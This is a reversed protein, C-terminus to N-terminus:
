PLLLTFLHLVSQELLCLLALTKNNRALSHRGQRGHRSYKSVTDVSGVVDVMGVLGVISVIMPTALIKSQPPGLSCIVHLSTM